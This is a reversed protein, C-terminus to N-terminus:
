RTTRRRAPRLTGSCYAITEMWSRWLLCGRLKSPTARLFSNSSSGTRQMRFSLIAKAFVAVAHVQDIVNSEAMTHNFKSVCRYSSSRTESWICFPGSPAPLFFATKRFSLEVQLPSLLIRVPVRLRCLRCHVRCHGHYQLRHHVSPQVITYLFGFLGAEAHDQSRFTYCSANLVMASPAQLIEILM